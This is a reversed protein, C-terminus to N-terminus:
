VHLYGIFYTQTDREGVIINLGNSISGVIGYHDFVPYNSHFLPFEDCIKIFNLLNSDKSQNSLFTSTVPTILIKREDDYFHRLLSAVNNLTIRRFGFNKLMIENNLKEIAMDIESIMHQCNMNLFIARRRELEKKLEHTKDSNHHYCIFLDNLNQQATSISAKSANIIQKKKQDRCMWIKEKPLFRSHINTHMPEGLTKGSLLIKDKKFHELLYKIRLNIIKFNKRKFFKNVEFIELMEEIAQMGILNKFFTTFEPHRFDIGKLFRLCSDGLDGLTESINQKCFEKVFDIVEQNKEINIQISAISNLIEKNHADWVEHSM